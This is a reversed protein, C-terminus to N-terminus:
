RVLVWETADKNEAKNDRAHKLWGTTQWHLFAEETIATQGNALLLRSSSLFAVSAAPSLMRLVTCGDRVQVALVINASTGQRPGATRKRFM